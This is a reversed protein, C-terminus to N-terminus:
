ALLNYKRRLQVIENSIYKKNIKKEESTPFLPTIHLSLHYYEYM